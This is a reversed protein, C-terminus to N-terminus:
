NGFGTAKVLYGSIFADVTRTSSSSNYLGIEEGPHLIVYPTSWDIKEMTVGTGLSFDLRPTSPITVGDNRGIFVFANGTTSLANRNFVADTVFLFHGSPVPTISARTDARYCNPVELDGPSAVVENCYFPIAAVGTPSSDFLPVVVVKNSQAAAPSSFMLALVATALNLIVIFVPRM